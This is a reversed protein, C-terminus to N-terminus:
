LLVSKKKYQFIRKNEVKKLVIIKTSPIISCKVTHVPLIPWKIQSISIPCAQIKFLTTM